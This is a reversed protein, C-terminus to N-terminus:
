WDVEPPSEVHNTRCGYFRYVSPLSIRGKSPKVGDGWQVALRPPDPGLTQLRHAQKDLHAFVLYEPAGGDPNDITEVRADIDDNLDKLNTVDVSLFCQADGNSCTIRGELRWILKGCNWQEFRVFPSWESRTVYFITRRAGRSDAWIRRGHRLFRISSHALCAICASVRRCPVHGVESVPLLSVVISADYTGIKNKVLAL